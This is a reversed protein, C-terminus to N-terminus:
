AVHSRDCCLRALYELRRDQGAGGGDDSRVVMWGAIGFRRGLVRRQRAADGRGSRDEADLKEVM